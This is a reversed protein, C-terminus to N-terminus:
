GASQRDTKRKLVTLLGYSSFMLLIPYLPVSYRSYAYTLIHIAYHFVIVALFPGYLIGRRAASLFGWVALALLAANFLLIALSKAAMMKTSYDPYAWFLYLRFIVRELYAGPDSVINRLAMKGLLNDDEVDHPFDYDRNIERLLRGEEERFPRRYDFVTGLYLMKKGGTALFVRGTLCHNRVLLPTVLLAFGAGFQLLRSLWFKKWRFIYIAGVVLPFFLIIAKTLTMMGLVLGAPFAFGSRALSSIFLYLFILLLMTYLPETFPQAVLALAKFYIAYLVAALLAPPRQRFVKVALLYTLLCSAADMLSQIVQLKWLETGWLKYILALFCPYLPLRELNVRSSEDVYGRGAILNGAIAAYPDVAPKGKIVWGLEEGKQRLLPPFIVLCYILRLGLALLVVFIIARHDRFPNGKTEM